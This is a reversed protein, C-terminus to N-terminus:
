CIWVSHQFISNFLFKKEKKETIPMIKLMNLAAFLTVLSLLLGGTSEKIKLKKSKREKRDDRQRIFMSERVESARYYESGLITIKFIKKIVMAFNYFFNETLADMKSLM